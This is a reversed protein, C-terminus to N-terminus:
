LKNYSYNCSSVTAQRDYLLELPKALAWFELWRNYSNGFYLLNKNGPLQEVPTWLMIHSKTKLFIRERKVLLIINGVWDAFSLSWTPRRTGAEQFLMLVASTGTLDGSTAKQSLITYSLSSLPSLVIKELLELQWLCSGLMAPNKAFWSAIVTFLNRSELIQVTILLQRSEGESPMIWLMM